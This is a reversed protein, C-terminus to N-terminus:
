LEQCPPSPRPPADKRRPSSLSLSQQPLRPPARPPSLRPLAPGAPRRAIQLHIRPLRRPAPRAARAGEGRPFGSQEGRLHRGGSGATGPATEPAPQQERSTNLCFSSKEQRVSEQARRAGWSPSGPGVRHGPANCAARVREWLSKQAAKVITHNGEPFKGKEISRIGHKQGQQNDSSFM